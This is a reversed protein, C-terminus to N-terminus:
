MYNMYRELYYDQLTNTAQSIDYGNKIILEQMDKHANRNRSIDIIRNAWARPSESISMRNFLPTIEVESPINESCLLPIGCAQAEIAVIGLGEYKSPFIFADFGNLIVNVDSRSGLFMVDAEINKTIALNKISTELDGNGVLVLKANNKINKIEMFVKIIFEHNKEPKFRGIHGIVFSDNIRLEKRIYKRYEKSATFKSSDIANKLVTYNQNKFLYEGADRSCAMFDTAHLLYMKQLIKKIIKKHDNTMGNSHSHAIRVPIGYKHAEKLVFYGITYAHVHIIKYNNNSIIKRIDRQFKVLNYDERVSCYFIRGGLNVIEDDYFQKELYEVIFDFQIKKRDIHRYINMLLAQTGGAEMRQLVHLVRIPAENKM